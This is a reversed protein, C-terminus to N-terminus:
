PLTQFIHHIHAYAYVAWLCLFCVVLLSIVVLGVVEKTTKVVKFDGPYVSGQVTPNARWAARASSFGIREALGYTSSYNEWEEFNAYDKQLKATWM